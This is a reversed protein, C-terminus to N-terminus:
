FQNENENYVITTITKTAIKIKVNGRFFQDKESVTLKVPFGDVTYVLGTKDQTEFSFAAQEVSGVRETGKFIVVASNVALFVKAINSDIESESNFTTESFKQQKSEHAIFLLQPMTLNRLLREKRKPIPNEDIDTMIPHKSSFIFRSEAPISDVVKIKGGRSTRTEFKHCIVELHTILGQEKHLVRYTVKGEIVLREDHEILPPIIDIDSVKKITETCEFGIDPVTYNITFSQQPNFREQIKKAQQEEVPAKELIKEVAISKEKIPKEPMTNNSATKCSILLVFTCTVMFKNM